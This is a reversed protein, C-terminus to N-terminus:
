VGIESGYREKLTDCIERADSIRKMANSYAESGAPYKSAIERETDELSVLKGRRCLKDALYLLEGEGVDGPAGGQLDMHSGVLIATKPYGERLLLEMGAKAHHPESRAIDHLLCASELLETDLLVGHKQMSRAYDLALAAVHEGHSVIDQPANYKELLKACRARDPYGRLGLHGLLAAYDEPTDMDLLSGPDDMEVELTPLQRLFGKLGDAGGYLLLQGVYRAPVLPPHGRKGHYVPRVVSIGKNEKFEQILKQLTAVDVACCDAPLIFFADLASQTASIEKLLSVGTQVSSFMGEDYNDNHILHIIEPDLTNNSLKESGQIGPLDNNFVAELEQANHGTVIIIDSVGAEAAIKVCRMIATANGVPLLPKFAGMRKSLGAALIIIAINLNSKMINSKM